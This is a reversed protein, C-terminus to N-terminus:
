SVWAGGGFARIGENPDTPEGLEHGTLLLALPGRPETGVVDPLLHGAAQIQGLPGCVMGLQKTGAFSGQLGLAKERCKGSTGRKAYTISVM